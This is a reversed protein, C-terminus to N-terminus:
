PVMDRNPGEDVKLGVGAGRSGRAGDGTGTKGKAGGDEM